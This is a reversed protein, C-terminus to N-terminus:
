GASRLVTVIMSCKSLDSPYKRIAQSGKAIQLIASSFLKLIGTQLQSRTNHSEIHTSSQGRLDNLEM